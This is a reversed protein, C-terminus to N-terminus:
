AERDALVMSVDFDTDGPSVVVFEWCDGRDIVPPQWPAGNPTNVIGVPRRKIGDLEAWYRGSIADLNLTASPVLGSVQLPFLNDECGVDDSNCKRWYCQITLPRAGTNTVAINVATDRCRVFNDWTPVRYVYEEVACVPMCGGCSPPPSVVLEIQEPECDTSFLVPMEACKEPTKCDAAHVWQIPSVTIADWEVDLNVPPLYLYPVTVTLEWSVRYMTAQQNRKSSASLEQTIEPAKTLVVGHAERILTAPDAATHSPHATFFQLVSDTRLNTDRLQCALWSLGYELGANTCALLLADFQFVRSADRVPGAVSGSGTTETIPRQVNAPGGGKVDFVWIGTFEASEPARTSYWPALEPRYTPDLLYERLGPWSDDYSIHSRCGGCMAMATWCNDGVLVLGTGYRRSGDPPAYFNGIPASTPPVQLLGDSVAALACDGEVLYLGGYGELDGPDYLDGDPPDDESVPPDVPVYLGSGPPDEELGVGETFGTLVGVDSTPVKTGLHAVVRSSNAIEVGDLAWYGRFAM